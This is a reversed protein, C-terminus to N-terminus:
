YILVITFCKKSEIGKLLVEGELLINNSLFSLDNSMSFFFFRLAAEHM